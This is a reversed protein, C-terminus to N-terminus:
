VSMWSGDEGRESQSFAGSRPINLEMNGQEYEGKNKSRM